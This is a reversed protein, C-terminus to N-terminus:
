ARAARNMVWGKYARPPFFSLWLAIGATTGLPTIVMTFAASSEPAVGNLMYTFGIFPIVLLTGTWISWLLFRNVVIADVLGLELQRVLRQRHAVTEYALWAFPLMRSISLTFHAPSVRAAGTADVGTGATLLFLFLWSSVLAASVGGALGWGLMGSPRFVVRAFLVFCILATNCIAHSTFVGAERPILGHNAFQLTLLGIAALAFGLGVLTEPSAGTRVGRVALRLGLAAIALSIVFGPTIMSAMCSADVSAAHCKFENPAAPGM